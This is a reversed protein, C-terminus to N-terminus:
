PPVNDFHENSSPTREQSDVRSVHIRVQNLRIGASGICGTSPPLDLHFLLDIQVTAAVVESENNVQERSQTTPPPARCLISAAGFQLSKLARKDRSAILPRHGAEVFNTQPFLRCQCRFPSSARRVTSFAPRTVSRPRSPRSHGEM